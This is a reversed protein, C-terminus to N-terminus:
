FFTRVADIVTLNDDVVPIVRWKDFATCPHSITCACADGVQIDITPDVALHLHQDSVGRVVSRQSPLPILGRGSRWTRTAIPPGLDIPLDRKGAGLIVLDPEPRSLVVCWVELAADLLRGGNASRGALPSTVEFYGGDHVVYSGSRLVPRICPLDARLEAVAEVVFDFYASGGASVIPHPVTPFLGADVLQRTTSTVLKLFGRVADDPHGDDLAGTALCSSLTGEFAEVGVLRLQESATVARAVDLAEAATRCGARGYAHGVEVLVNVPRSADAARLLDTMRRVGTESDVLCYFDFAEDDLERALWDMAPPEVLQNAYFVRSIGFARYLALHSPTAATLAWCGADIQLEFIQPAMTTKGHPALLVENERCYAAMSEINRMLADRRLVMVPLPLDGTLVNWGTEAVLNVNLRRHDGFPLGKIGAPFPEERLEALAALDIRTTLADVASLPRHPTSNTSM